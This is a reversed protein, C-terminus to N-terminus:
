LEGRWIPGGLDRFSDGGMVRPEIVLRAPGPPRRIAIDFEQAEGTALDRPLPVWPAKWLLNQGESELRVECAVGGAGHRAALWRAEGTNTLRLRLSRREGEPWPLNAGEVELTGAVKGWCLTTPPPLRRRRDGPPQRHRLAECAAAVAMAAAEPDHVRRVHERAARGLERLRDSRRLLKALRAALCPIEDPGLPIALTAAPPLEAFQGFESVVAGRGVAMVRLLSASTEGASPYRLNVCLDVAAIAAEFVDFGVFGTITVREAVGLRHIEMEFDLEPSVEGVVLLHVRELGPATLARVASLTRKIPTQFGFSGLLPVDAPIGYRQRLARGAAPDAEPPLPIGMPVARVALEPDEERLWDAAWASHVLVGRQRRLLTRRAPLAFLGADSYGGWWRPQAVAEGVWDHDATLAESYPEFVGEGLTCEALLHHLVLDHLTVIGPQALALDRVAAHYPNNGMQYLPLRGDRGLTSVDAPHWRARIEDSVPLDPLRLVRVDVRQALHPLLDASYDAIGSRVPPLPSVYDLALQSEM